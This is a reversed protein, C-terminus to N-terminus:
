DQLSEIYEYDERWKGLEPELGARVSNSIMRVSLFDLVESKSVIGSDIASKLIAQREAASLGASQRVAYGLSYLTSATDAWFFGEYGELVINCRPVGYSGFMKFLDKVSMRFQKCRPCMELEFIRSPKEHFAFEVLMSKLPHGKRLCADEDLFITLTDSEKFQYIDLTKAIEDLSALACEIIDGRKELKCLKKVWSYGPIIPTLDEEYPKCALHEKFDIETKLKEEEVREHMKRVEDSSLYKYIGTDPDYWKVRIPCESSLTGLKGSCEDREFYTPGFLSTLLAEEDSWSRSLMREITLRFEENSKPYRLWCFDASDYYEADRLSLTPKSLASLESLYNETCFSFLEDFIQRAESGVMDNASRIGSVSRQLIEGQLRQQLGIYEVFHIPNLGYDAFDEITAPYDRTEGSKHIMDFLAKM